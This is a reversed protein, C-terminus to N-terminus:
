DLLATKGVGAEGALVLVGSMGLRAAAELSDIAQQEADRGVLMDGLTPARALRPHPASGWPFRADRAQLLHALPPSPPTRRHAGRLRM